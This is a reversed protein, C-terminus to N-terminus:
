ARSRGRDTYEIASFPSEIVTSRGEIREYTCRMDRAFLAVVAATALLLVRALPWLVIRLM